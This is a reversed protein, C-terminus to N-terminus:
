ADDSTYGYGVSVRERAKNLVVGLVRAQNRTLLELARELQPYTTQGAAAVLLVGGTVRCLSLSDAVPLVPPADILVVDAVEALADLLRSTRGTSLLEAPNDVASGVPLLYFGRPARRLQIRADVFRLADELKCRGLLVDTAGDTNDVDFHRHLDPNRLDLDAVVVRRGMSAITAALNVVTLTKGEGADPSTVMITAQPMGSISVELNSRLIRFAEDRLTSDAAQAPSAKAV